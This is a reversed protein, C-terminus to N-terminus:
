NSEPPAVIGTIASLPLSKDGIDITLNGDVLHVADVRGTHKEGTDPDEYEVHKGVLSASQTFANQGAVVQEVAILSSISKNLSQTERLSSLSALQQIFEGNELPSLPDQNKLQSVLINLFPDNDGSPNTSSGTGYRQTITPSQAASVDM